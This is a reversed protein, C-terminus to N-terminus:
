RNCDVHTNMHTQMIFINVLKIKTVSPTSGSDLIEQIHKGQRTQDAQQIHETSRSGTGKGIYFISAPKQRPDKLSYVYYTNEM